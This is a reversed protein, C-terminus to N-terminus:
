EEPRKTQSSHGCACCYGDRVRCILLLLGNMTKKGKVKAGFTAAGHEPGEIPVGDAQFLDMTEWRFPEGHEARALPVEGADILRHALSEGFARPVVRGGKLANGHVRPADIEPEEGLVPRDDAIGDM